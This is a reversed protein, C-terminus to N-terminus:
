PRGGRDGPRGPGLVHARRRVTRAGQGGHGPGPRCLGHGRVPGPRCRRIQPPAQVPQRIGLRVRDALARRRARPRTTSLSWSGPACRFSAGTSCACTMTWDDYQTPSFRLDLRRDRDPLTPFLHCCGTVTACPRTLGYEGWDPTHLWPRLLTFGRGQFADRRPTPWLHGDANQEFRPANAGRVRCGYVGARPYRALAAGFRGLWDSPVLADDDLYVAFTAARVAPQAALWNRGAPAGVNVPLTLVTLDAGLRDQWAALVAATDDRCGNDLVFIRWGGPPIFARGTAALAALTRDLRSANNFTYLVGGGFRCFPAGRELAQRVTHLRNVALADLPRRRGAAIARSHRRGPRGRLCPKPWPSFRDPGLCCGWRGCRSVASVARGALLDLERAVALGLPALAGPLAALRDAAAVLLAPDDQMPAVTALGHAAAPADPTKALRDFFLRALGAVDRREALERHEPDQGSPRAGAAVAAVIRALPPPLFPRSAQRRALVVAAAGDLPADEWGALSMRDALGSVASGGALAADRAAVLGSGRGGVLLLRHLTVPLGAL